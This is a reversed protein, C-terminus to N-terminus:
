PLGLRKLPVTQHHYEGHVYRPQSNGDAEYVVGEAIISDDRRFRPAEPPLIATMNEKNMIKPGDAVVDGIQWSIHGWGEWRTNGTGQYHDNLQLWHELPIM